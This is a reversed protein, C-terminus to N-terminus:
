NLGCGLGLADDTEWCALLRTGATVASGHFKAMVRRDFDLRLVKGNSDGTPNAAISAKVRFLINIIIVSDRQRSPVM